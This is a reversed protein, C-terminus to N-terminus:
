HIKVPLQHDSQSTSFWTKVTIELYIIMLFIFLLLPQNIVLKRLKQSVFFQLYENKHSSRQPECRSKPNLNWQFIIIGAGFFPKKPFNSLHILLKLIISDSILPMLNFSIRIWPCFIIFKRYFDLVILVYCWSLWSCHKSFHIQYVKIQPLISLLIKMFVAKLTNQIETKSNQSMSTWKAICRGANHAAWFNITHSNHMSSSISKLDSLRTSLQNEDNKWLKIRVVTDYANEYSELDM